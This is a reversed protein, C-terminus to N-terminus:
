HKSVRLVMALHLVGKVPRQSQKVAAEVDEVEDVRGAVATTNCGMAELEEFLAKSTDSTGSTRSLFTLHRAGHEVMWTAIARGLGGVGGTLLYSAMPDFKIRRIHPSTYLESPPDSTMTVVVKGIHSPDKLFRFAKEVDNVPFITLPEIPRLRGEQTHHLFM